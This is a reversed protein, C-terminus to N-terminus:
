FLIFCHKLYMLFRIFTNYIFNLDKYRTTLSAMFIGMGLGLLSCQLLILPFLIIGISPQLNYGKFLFIVFLIFFLACQILLRILASINQSIPVCLRPFYVQSFLGSNNQFISKGGNLCSSLYGWILNGSMYFLFQPTGDTSLNAIKGFILMNIVTSIIPTIVFYFPGLITQKYFSVVDRRVFLIILDRYKWISKLNLNFWGREPTIILDWHQTKGM